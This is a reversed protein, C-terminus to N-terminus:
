KTDKESRCCNPLHDECLILPKREKRFFVCCGFLRVAWYILMAKCGMGAANMAVLMFEDAFRRMKGNPSVGAEQWAIYQYDHVISAELHPGVRGAFIRFLRPVSALDTLMGRPVTIYRRKGDLEFSVRYDKAVIYQAERDVNERGSKLRMLKLDSEYRFGSISKWVPSKPYPPVLQECDEAESDPETEGQPRGRTWPHWCCALLLIAFVIVVVTLIEKWVGLLRALASSILEPSWIGGIVLAAVAMVVLSCSLKKM